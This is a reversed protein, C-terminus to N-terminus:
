ANETAKKEKLKKLIDDYTAEDLKYHKRYLVCAILMLICPIVTMSILLGIKQANDVSDTVAKILTTKEEASIVGQNAQSEYDSIRNTYSTVRTIM